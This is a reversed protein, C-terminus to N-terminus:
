TCRHGHSGQETGYDHVLCVSDEYQIRSVWLPDSSQYGGDESLAVLLVEFLFLFIEEEQKLYQPVWLQERM